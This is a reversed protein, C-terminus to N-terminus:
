LNTIANDRSLVDYKLL